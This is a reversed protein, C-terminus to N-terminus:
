HLAPPTEQKRVWVPPLAEEAREIDERTLSVFVKSGGQQKM